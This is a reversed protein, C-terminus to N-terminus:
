DKTKFLKMMVKWAFVPLVKQRRIRKPESLLRYLWEVSLNQWIAPARKVIGAITDLTGGIGQCVKVHTLESAHSAFWKEQRPSGLALFLIEAGSDNIKEVLEHMQQEPVYGDSRGAIRLGPYQRQLGEAAASNVSERSGYIFVPRGEKAALHCIEKMFEVGPVRSLRAGYLLRAALVVGIGDPILLDAHKFADYLVPDAPVSFNKEPNVAFISCPKKGDLFRRVRDIAQCRDVPDVWIDIIKLREALKAQRQMLM